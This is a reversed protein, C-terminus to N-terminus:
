SIKLVDTENLDKAMVYGRNETWIKHDPTCVIQKGSETDTIRMVKAKPSTMAFDTVEKFSIEKTETNMSKVKDGIKIDKLKKYGEETELISDGSLCLQSTTIKWGAKVYLENLNKNANESFFLYPEGHQHRKTLIKTFIDFADLTKVVSGDKRSYLNYSEGNIVANLFEDTLKVAHHLKPMRREISAGKTTRMEIFEEIEPHHVDLYIAQSARRLGGQSIGQAISESIKLFPMIGSTKGNKTKAGVERVESFDNGIGGGAAGLVMAEYYKNFIDNLSDSTQQVFCSIPLGRENGLNATIPTSTRFWNREFYSYLRKEHEPNDAGARCVRKYVDEPKEGAAPNVYSEQLMIREFENM